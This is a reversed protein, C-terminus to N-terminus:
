EQQGEQNATAEDVFVGSVVANFGETKRAKITVPGSVEWSLYIGEGTEEITANQRDCVKGDRSKVTIEMGRKNHDYDLVYVTLRYSRGPPAAVSMTFQDATTWCAAVKSGTQGSPLALVRRTADARGWVYVPASTRLSFDNAPDIKHGALWAAITGYKGPWAGATKTDRRGVTTTFPRSTGQQATQTIAMPNFTVTARGQADLVIARNEVASKGPKFAILRAAAKPRGQVEVTLGAASSKEQYSLVAADAYLVQPGAGAQEQIWFASCREVGADLDIPLGEAKLRAGTFEGRYAYAYDGDPTQTIEEVLYTKSPEVTRLRPALNAPASGFGVALLLAQGRRASTYSWAYPGQNDEGTALPHAVARLLAGMRPNKRWDNFQRLFKRQEPAWRRVDSYYTSCGGLLSAYCAQPTFMAPWPDNADEGHVQVCAELPLLGIYNMADRLNAQINAFGSAGDTRKYAGAQGNEGILM